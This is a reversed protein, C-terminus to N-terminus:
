VSRPRGCADQAADLFAHQSPCALGDGHLISAQLQQLLGRLGANGRSAGPLTNECEEHATSGHTNSTLKLGASMSDVIAPRGTGATIRAATAPAEVNVRKEALNVRGKRM